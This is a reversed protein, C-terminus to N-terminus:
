EAGAELVLVSFKPNESLRSAVVNGATGGKAEHAAFQSTSRFPTGGVIIYDYTLTTLQSPHDLLEGSVRLVYSLLSAFCFVLM